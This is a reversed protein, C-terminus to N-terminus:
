RGAVHCHSCARWNRIHAVIILMAGAIKLPIEMPAHHFCNGLILLALGMLFQIVLAKKHHLKTYGRWIAWGGAAMSVLLTAAELYANELIEIGFLPLTTFLVPLFVCHVACLLSAGIGIADWKAHYFSKMRMTGETEELFL